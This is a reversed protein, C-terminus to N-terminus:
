VVFFDWKGGKTCLISNFHVKKIKCSSNKTGTRTRFFTRKAHRQFYAHVNRDVLDVEFNAKNASLISAPSRLLSGLFLALFWSQQRTGFWVSSGVHSLDSLSVPGQLSGPRSEPGGTPRVIGGSQDSNTNDGSVSLKNLPFEM